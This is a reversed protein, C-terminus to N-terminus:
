YFQQGEGGKGGGGEVVVPDAHGREWQSMDMGFTSIGYM